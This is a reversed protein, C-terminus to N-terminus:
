VYLWPEVVQGIITEVFLFLALTELVMGWGPDIAAALAMPFGAAIIPGFYPVFRLLSAVVGWLIPSPLGIFYLGVAIIVGFSANVLTQVLFLRGLRGAADNMALTTRHLDSSGALRIFRNRLDERQTRHVLLQGGLDGPKARDGLIRNPPQRQPVRVVLEKLALDGIEGIDRAPRERARDRRSQKQPAEEVPRLRFRKGKWIKSAAGLPVCMAGTRKLLSSEFWLTCKIHMAKLRRFVRAFTRRARLPSTAALFEIDPPPAGTTIAM